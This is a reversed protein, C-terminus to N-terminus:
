HTERTGNGAPQSHLTSCTVADGDAYSEFKSTFIWGVDPGVDVYLPRCLLDDIAGDEVRTLAAATDLAHIDCFIHM